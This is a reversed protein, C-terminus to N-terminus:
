PRLEPIFLPALIGLAFGLSIPGPALSVALSTSRSGIWAPVNADRGLRGKWVSREELLGLGICCLAVAWPVFFAVDPWGQLRAWLAQGTWTGLLAAVALAAVYVLAQLSRKM